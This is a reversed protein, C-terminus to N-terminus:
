FPLRARRLIAAALGISAPMFSGTRQCAFLLASPPRRVSCGILGGPMAGTKERRKPDDSVGCCLHGHADRYPLRSRAIAAM